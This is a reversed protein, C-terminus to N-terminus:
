QSAASNKTLLAYDGDDIWTSLANETEKVVVSLTASGGGTFYLRVESGSGFDSINWTGSGEILEKGLVKVGAGETFRTHLRQSSFGGDEQFTLVADGDGQWSGVVEGKPVDHAPPLYPDRELVACGSITCVAMAFWALAMSLFRTQSNASGM